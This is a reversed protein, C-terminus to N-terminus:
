RFCERFAKSGISIIKVLWSGQYGQSALSPWCALEPWLTSDTRDSNYDLSCFRPCSKQHVMDTWAIGEHNDENWEHQCINQWGITLDTDDVYARTKETDIKCVPCRDLALVKLEGYEFLTTLKSTDPVM